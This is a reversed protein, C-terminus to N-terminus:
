VYIKTIIENNEFWNTLSKISSIFCNRYKIPKSNIELLLKSLEKLKLKSIESNNHNQKNFLKVIKNLISYPIYLTYSALNKNSYKVLNTNYIIYQHEHEKKVNQYKKIIKIFSNTEEYLERCAATLESENKEIWGGSSSWKGNKSKNNSNEKVLLIYVCNNAITYPTINATLLQDKM